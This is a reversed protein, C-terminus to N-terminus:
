RLAQAKEERGRSLSINNDCATVWGTIIIMWLKHLSGLTNLPTHSPALTRVLGALEARKLTGDQMIKILSSPRSNARSCLSLDSSCEGKEKRKRRGGM